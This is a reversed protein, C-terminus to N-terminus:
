GCPARWAPEEAYIARDSVLSRREVLFTPEDDGGEDWSCSQIMIQWHLDICHNPKSGLLTPVASSKLFQLFANFIEMKGSRAELASRFEAPVDHLIDQLPGLPQPTSLDDCRGVLIHCPEDRRRIFEEVLSTKGIGAEGYITAISGREGICAAFAAELDDLQRQRELLGRMKRVQRVCPGDSYNAGTEPHVCAKEDVLFPAQFKLM